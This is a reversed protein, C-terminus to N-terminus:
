LCLLSLEACVPSQGQPWVAMRLGPRGKITEVRTVWIIVRIVVRKGVSHM